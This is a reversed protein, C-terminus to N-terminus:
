EEHDPFYTLLEGADRMEEAIIRAKRFAPGDTGSKEVDFLLRLLENGHYFCFDSTAGRLVRNRQREMEFESWTKTLELLHQIVPRQLYRDLIKVQDCANSGGGTDAPLVGLSLRLTSGDGLPIFAAGNM